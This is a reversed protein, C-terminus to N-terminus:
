PVDATVDGVRMGYRYNIYTQWGGGIPRFQDGVASGSLICLFLPLAATLFTRPIFQRTTM